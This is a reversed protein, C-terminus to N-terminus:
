SNQASIGLVSFCNLNWRNTIHLILGADKRSGIKHSIGGISYNNRYYLFLRIICTVSKSSPGAPLILEAALM